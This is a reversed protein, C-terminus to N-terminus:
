IETQKGAAKPKVTKTVCRATILTRRSRTAPGKAHQDMVGDADIQM